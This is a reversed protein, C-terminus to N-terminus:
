HHCTCQGSPCHSCGGGSPDPSCADAARHPDAAPVDLAPNRDFFNNPLLQFSAVENPMVPWDESRPIHTVGVTHWLVIDTDVTPRDAAVWAPLGAGSRDQNPHDGASHMQEPDYPTVWLSRNAFGARREILSPPQAILTDTAWGPLLKYGVPSGWANTVDPNVVTWARATQPNTLGDGTNETELLTKTVRIANGHPNSPGVPEADVDSQYVRNRWGDVEMDLRFNFLHQHWTAALGAAIPTAHKPTEGPLTAITQVIGMLKTDVEIHGDQFFNWYFGYHYNGVTAIFSVVLKRSRRVDVKGTVWDTHKWLIGADEEHVCVANRIVLPEGDDDAMVADLYTIAGLCDCGLVLSNAMRGLGYEGADFASRFYHTDEPIGYPVVMEALSGRHMVSRYNPAAGAASDDYEVGTLVLGDIPHMNVRFRWKQWRLEPGDFAFGPGASQVIDLPAVDDRMPANEAASYNGCTQPIPRVGHDEVAFISGAVTDVIVILGEVVHAYANDDEHHRFYTVCSWLRRGTLDIDARNATGFPDLQVFSLDHVGRLALADIYRQDAKAVADIIGIESSLMPAGGDTLASSGVIAGAELDVIVDFTAASTRDLVLARASRPTHEGARVAAKDPEHTFMAGFGPREGGIGAERILATTRRIEDATLADFLPSHM